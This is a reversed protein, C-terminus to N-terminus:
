LYLIHGFQRSVQISFFVRHRVYRAFSTSTLFFIVTSVCLIESINYLVLISEFYNYVYQKYNPFSKQQKSLVFLINTNIRDAAQLNQVPLRIYVHYTPFNAFTKNEACRMRQVRDESGSFRITFSYNASPTEKM